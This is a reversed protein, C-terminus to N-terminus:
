YSRPRDRAKVATCNRHESFTCSPRARDERRGNACQATDCSLVQIAVVSLSSVRRSADQCVKQVHQLKSELIQLEKLWCQVNALATHAVPGKLDLFYSVDGTENLFSRLSSVSSSLRYELAQLLELTQVVGEISLLPEQIQM